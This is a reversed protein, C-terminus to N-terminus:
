GFIMRGLVFCFQAPLKQVFKEGRKTPIHVIQLACAFGLLFHRMFIRNFNVALLLLRVVGKAEFSIRRGCLLKIKQNLRLLWRYFNFGIYVRSKLNPAIAPACSDGDVDQSVKLVQRHVVAADLGLIPFLGNEIPLRQKMVLIVRLFPVFNRAEKRGRGDPGPRQALIGFTNLALAARRIYVGIKQLLNLPPALQQCLINRGIIGPYVNAAQIVGHLHDDVANDKQSNAFFATNLRLVLQVANCVLRLDILLQAQQKLPCVCFVIRTQEM